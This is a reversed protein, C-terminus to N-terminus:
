PPCYAHVKCADRVMARHVPQHHEKRGLQRTQLDAIPASLLCTVELPSLTGLRAILSFAPKEPRYGRSLRNANQCGTGSSSRDAWRLREVIGLGTAGAARLATLSLRGDAIRDKSGIAM